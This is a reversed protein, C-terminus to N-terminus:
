SDTADGPSADAQFGALAILMWYMPQRTNVLFMAEAFLAVFIFLHKTGRIRDIAWRVFLGFPIIGYSFFPGLISSHIELETGFRDYGGEGAGFLFYQPFQVIRTWGRDSLLSSSDPDSTIKGIKEMVRLFMKNEAVFSPLPLKGSQLCVLLLIFLLFVIGWVLKGRRNTEKLSHFILGIWFVVLGLMTGTSTSPLILITGLISWLIWKRNGTYHDTLYIILISFFIFVSYQNPDNFSGSYRPAYTWRGTGSVFLVAQLILSLKLAGGISRLLKANNRKTLFSSFALTVILCYLYYLIPRAFSRNGTLLYYFANIAVTLLTFVLLPFDSRDILFGGRQTTVFHLACGLILFLDGAQFSGSPLLYFQKIFLGLLFIYEPFHLTHEERSLDAQKERM